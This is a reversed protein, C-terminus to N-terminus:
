YQLISSFHMNFIFTDSLLLDIPSTVGFSFLNAEGRITNIKESSHTSMHSLYDKNIYNNFIKRSLNKYLGWYFKNRVLISFISTLFKLFYILNFIVFIYLLIKSEPINEIFPYFEFYKEYNQGVFIGLISNNILALSKM